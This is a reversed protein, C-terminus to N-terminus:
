WNEEAAIEIVGQQRLEEAQQLLADRAEALPGALAEPLKQLVRIALTPRQHHQILLEALKIRLRPDSQPYRELTAGLVPIAREVDIQQVLGGALQTLLAQSLHLPEGAQEYAILTDAADAWNQQTILDTVRETQAALTQTTERHTQRKARAIERDLSFKEAKRNQTPRTFVTVLGWPNSDVIRLRIFVLAIIFGIGGALLQVSAPPMGVGFMFGAFLSLSAFIIAFYPIPVDVERWYNDLAEATGFTLEQRFQYRPWMGHITGLPAWLSAIFALACVTATLGESSSLKGTKPHPQTGLMAFQEIAALGIALAAFLLLFRWWGLRGEIVLGFFWLCLLNPILVVTWRDVIPSTLWATPHLGQGHLLILSAAQKESMGFLYTHVALVLVILGVTAYPRHHIPADISFPILM